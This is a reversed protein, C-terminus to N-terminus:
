QEDEKEIREFQRAVKRKIEEELEDENIDYLIALQGLMITADALEATIDSASVKEPRNLYKALIQTLESFEEIAQVAQKEKGYYEAIEIIGQMVEAKTM